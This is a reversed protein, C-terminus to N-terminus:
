FIIFWHCIAAAESGVCIGSQSIDKRLSCATIAHNFGTIGVNISFDHVSRTRSDHSWVEYFLSGSDHQTKHMKFIRMAEVAESDYNSYEPKFIRPIGWV